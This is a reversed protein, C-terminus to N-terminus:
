SINSKEVDELGLLFNKECLTAYIGELHHEIFQYHEIITSHMIRFKDINM